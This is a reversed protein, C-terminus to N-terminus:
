TPAPAAANQAVIEGTESTGDSTPYSLDAGHETVLRDGRPADRRLGEDRRHSRPSKADAGHLRGALGDHHEDHQPHHGGRGAHDGEDDQAPVARRGQASRDEGRPNGNENRPADRFHKEAEMDLVKQHNEIQRQTREAEDMLNDFKTQDDKSWTQSGKEALLNKADKNIASLRERLAQMSMITREHTILPCLFLGGKRAAKAERRSLTLRVPDAAPPARQPRADSRLRTRPSGARRSSCGPPAKDFAALNWKPVRPEVAQRSSRLVRDAFGNDVAEQADFWTEADM